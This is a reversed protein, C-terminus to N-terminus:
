LVVIIVAKALGRTTATFSALLLGSLPMTTLKEAGEEPALAASDLVVAVVLELPWALTVAVALEM